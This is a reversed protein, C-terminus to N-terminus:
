MDNRLNGPIFLRMSKGNKMKNWAANAKRM